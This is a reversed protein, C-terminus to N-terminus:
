WLPKVFALLNVCIRTQEGPEWAKFGENSIVGALYIVPIIVSFPIILYYDWVAISSYFSRCLPVILLFKAFKYPVGLLNSSILSIQSLCLATNISSAASDNPVKYLPLYVPM